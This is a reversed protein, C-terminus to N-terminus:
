KVNSAVAGVSQTLRDIKSIGGLVSFAITLVSLIQGAPTAAGLVGAAKLITVIVYGVVGLM